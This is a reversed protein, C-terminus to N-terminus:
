RIPTRDRCCRSPRCQLGRFFRSSAAEFAPAIGFLAATFLTLAMSFLLISSDIRITNGYKGFFATLVPISTNEARPRAGRNRAAIAGSQDKNSVNESFNPAVEEDADNRRPRDRAFAHPVRSM